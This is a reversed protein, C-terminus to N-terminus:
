IVIFVLTVDVFFTVFRSESTALRCFSVMISRIKFVKVLVVTRLEERDQDLLCFDVM